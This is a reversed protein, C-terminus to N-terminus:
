MHNPQHGKFPGRDMPVVKSLQQFSSHMLVILTIRHHHCIEMGLVAEVEMGISQTQLCLRWLNIASYRSLMNFHQINAVFHCGLYNM